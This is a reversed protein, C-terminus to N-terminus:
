AHFDALQKVLDSNDSYYIWDLFEEFAVTGDHNADMSDLTMAIIEDTFAHRDLIRLVHALERHSINGDRNIDFKNFLALLQERQRASGCGLEESDSFSLQSVAIEEDPYVGDEPPVFPPRLRRQAIHQLLDGSEHSVIFIDKKLEELGRFGSGIRLTPEKELLREIFKRGDFDTYWDPFVLNQNVIEEFIDCPAVTKQGFPVKGCVLEYFTVGLSWVDTEFGYPRRTIMEPSVYHATGALTFTRGFAGELTKAVGFDMLKIYGHKDLMINAPSIDRHVISMDHLAELVLVLSGVYFQAMQKTFPGTRSLLASLQGGPIVETLIYLSHSTKLTTVLRLLFQHETDSVEKLIACEREVGAPVKGDKLRVRKLAYMTRTKMYEVLRVSGFRAVGITRKHRLRNLKIDSDQLQARLKVQELMAGKVTAKFDNRELSWLEATPSSVDVSASRREEFLLAREGFCAGNKLTAVCVGDKLVRVEGEAIVYFNTAAEGQAFVRADQAFRRYVLKDVLLQLQEQAMTRFTPVKSMQKLLQLTITPSWKGKRDHEEKEVDHIDGLGIQRFVTVLDQNRLTALRCGDGGAAFGCPKASTQRQASRDCLSKLSDDQWCKGRGLTATTAAGPQLSVSVSGDIVVMMCFDREISEGSAFSKFSMASAILHRQSSPLKSLVAVRNLVAHLVSRELCHILDDGLVEKLKPLSLCLLECPMAAVVSRPNTENYLMGTGGIFGGANVESFKTAGVLNGASDLQGGSMINLRGTKVVYMAIPNEGQTIIRKGENVHVASLAHQVCASKQASPLGDFLGTCELFIQCDALEREAQERVVDRFARGPIAWICCTEKAIVSATRPCSHVLAVAGFNAGHSLTAVVKDDVVVEALGTELVYFYEGLEGQELICDGVGFVFYEAADLVSGAEAGGLRKCFGSQFLGARLLAREYDGAAQVRRRMHLRGKEGALSEDAGCPTGPRSGDQGSRRLRSRNWESWDHSRHLHHGKATSAREAELRGFRPAAM